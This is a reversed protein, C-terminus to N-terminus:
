IDAAPRRWDIRTEDKGIKAAYTVGDGRQPTCALTGAELQELARVM